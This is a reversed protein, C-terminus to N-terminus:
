PLPMRKISHRRKRALSRSNSRRAIITRPASPAIASSPTEPPLLGSVSYNKTVELAQGIIMSPVISPLARALLTKGSGPPGTMLVNHVISWSMPLM